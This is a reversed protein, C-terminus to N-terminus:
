PLRKDDEPKIDLIKHTLASEFTILLSESPSTVVVDDLEDLV